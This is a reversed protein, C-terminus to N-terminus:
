KVKNIVVNFKVDSVDEVIDGISPFVRQQWIIKENSYQYKEEKRAIVGDRVLIRENSDEFYHYGDSLDDGVYQGIYSGVEETKQVELDIGSSLKKVKINEIEFYKRKIYSAADRDPIVNENALLILEDECNNRDLQLALVAADLFQHKYLRKKVGNDIILSNVEPLYEWNGDQIEGDSTLHVRGDRRFILKEDIGNQTTMVWPKDVLFASQYLSVSHKELREILDLYYKM